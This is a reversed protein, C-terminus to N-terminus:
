FFFDFGGLFKTPRPPKPCLVTSRFRASLSPSCFLWIEIKNSFILFSKEVDGLPRKSFIHFQRKASSSEIIVKKVRDPSLDRGYGGERLTITEPPLSDLWSMLDVLSM